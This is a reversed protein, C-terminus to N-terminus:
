IGATAASSPRGAPIGLDPSMARVALTSHLGLALADSPTYCAWVQPPLM